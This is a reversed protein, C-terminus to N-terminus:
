EALRTLGACYYREVYKWEDYVRYNIEAPLKFSTQLTRKLDDMKKVWDSFYEAQDGVIDESKVSVFHKFVNKACEAYPHPQKTFPREAYDLFKSWLDNFVVPSVIVLDLDSEPTFSRFNKEPTLSYGFKASGVIAVNKVPVDLQTSVAIKLDHYVSLYADGHKEKLLWIHESMLYNNYAHRSGLDAIDNVLDASSILM